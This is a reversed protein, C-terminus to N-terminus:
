YLGRDHVLQYSGASTIGCGRGCRAPSVTGHSFARQQRVSGPEIKSVISVLLEKSNEPRAKSLAEGLIKLASSVSLLERRFKSTPRDTLHDM